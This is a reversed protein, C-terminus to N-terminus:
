TPTMFASLIATATDHIRLQQVFPPHSDSDPVVVAYRFGPPIILTRGSVLRVAVSQESAGGPEGRQLIVDVSESLEFDDSANSAISAISAISPPDPPGAGGFYVLTFRCRALTFAPAVPCAEGMPGRWVYQWRLLTALLSSAPDVLRDEVVLPRREELLDPKADELRVQLITTESSSSGTRYRRAHACAVVAAVVALVVVWWPLARAATGM